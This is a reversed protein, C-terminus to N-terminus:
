RLQRLYADAPQAAQIRVRGEIALAGQPRAFVPSLELEAIQPIDDAMRSIRLLM